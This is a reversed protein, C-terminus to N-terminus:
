YVTGKVFYIDTIKLVIDFTGMVDDLNIIFSLLVEERGYSAAYCDM